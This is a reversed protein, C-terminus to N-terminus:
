VKKLILITKVNTYEIDGDADELEEDVNSYNVIFTQGIMGKKGLDFLQKASSSIDDFYIMNEEGDEDKFSFVYDGDEMGQYVGTITETESQTDEIIENKNEEPTAITFNCFLFAILFLPVLKLTKM